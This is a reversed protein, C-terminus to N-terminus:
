GRELRAEFSSDDGLHILIRGTIRDPGALVAWGRGSARDCEDTGEWTFEIRPRKGRSSYRWDLGTEVAIFRLSGTGSADFVIQAPGVLDRAEADWMEMETIRWRGSFPNETREM